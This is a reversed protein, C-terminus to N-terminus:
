VGVQCYNAMLPAMWLGIASANIKGQGEELDVDAFNREDEFLHLISRLERRIPRPSFASEQVLSIVQKSWESLSDAIFSGYTSVVMREVSDSAVEDSKLKANSCNFSNLESQFGFVKLGTMQFIIFSQLIAIIKLTKDSLKVIVRNCDKLEEVTASAREKKTYRFCRLFM